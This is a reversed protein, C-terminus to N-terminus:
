TLATVGALNGRASEADGTDPLGKPGPLPVSTGHTPASLRCDTLRTRRAALCGSAGSTRVCWTEGYQEALREGRAIGRGANKATASWPVARAPQSAANRTLDVVTHSLSAGEAQRLLADRESWDGRLM